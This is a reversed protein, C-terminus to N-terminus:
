LSPQRLQCPWTRFLLLTALNSIFVHDLLDSCGIGTPRRLEANATSMMPGAHSLEPRQCALKYSLWQWFSKSQQWFRLCHIWWICLTRCLRTVLRETHRAITARLLRCGYYRDGEQVILDSPLYSWVICMCEYLFVSESESLGLRALDREARLRRMEVQIRQLEQVNTIIEFGCRQHGLLPAAGCCGTRRKRESSKSM